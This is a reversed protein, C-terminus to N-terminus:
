AVVELDLATAMAIIAAVLATVYPDTGLGDV